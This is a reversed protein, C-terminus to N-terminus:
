GGLLDESEIIKRALDPLPIRRRQSESQLRRHAENEDLNLRRMFIGKAREILKRNELTQALEQKEEILQQQEQFRRVAVEIQAQLGEVSVPKILYGFVGAEGARRVLDADSYASVVILPCRRIELLRSAVEIGDTGNLKIDLLVLDPRHSEFLEVAEESNSVQGIVEHGLKELNAKIGLGVLTDDEVILVKRSSAASNPMSM